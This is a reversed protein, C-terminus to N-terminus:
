TLAKQAQSPFVLDHLLASKSVNQKTAAVNLAKFEETSIKFSVRKELTLKKGTMAQHRQTLDQLKAELDEIKQKLHDQTQRGHLAYTIM